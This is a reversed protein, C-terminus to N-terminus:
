SIVTGVVALGMGGVITWKILTPRDGVFALLGTVLLACSVAFIPGNGEWGGQVMQHIDSWIGVGVILFFLWVAPKSKVM